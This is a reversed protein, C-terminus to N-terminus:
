SQAAFAAGTESPAACSLQSPCSSPEHEHTGFSVAHPSGFIQSREHESCRHCSHHGHIHNRNSNSKRVLKAAGSRAIHRRGPVDDAGPVAQDEDIKIDRHCGSDLTRPPRESHRDPGEDGGRAQGEEWEQGYRPTGLRYQTM